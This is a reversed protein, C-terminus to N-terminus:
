LSPFFTPSFDTSFDVKTCVPTSWDRYSNTAMNKESPLMRSVNEKLIAWGKKHFYDPFAPTKKNTQNTKKKTLTLPGLGTRVRHLKFRIKILFLLGQWRGYWLKPFRLPYYHLHVIFLLSPLDHPTQSTALSLLISSASFTPAMSCSPM